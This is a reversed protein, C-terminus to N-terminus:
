TELICAATVFRGEDYVSLEASYIDYLWAHLALRGSALAAHVDPFTTLAELQGLVNEEVARRWLEAPDATTQRAREVAPVVGGLWERLSPHAGLHDLGDIVAQVGGCGYHGCVIVHPVELHGVAYEIAAGVSADAHELPPVLNAVNRIVFLDGPASTTLLEPVVRSDSCGVYLAGPSQGDSALRTLFDRESALYRRRFEEHGRLLEGVM